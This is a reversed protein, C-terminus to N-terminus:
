LGLQRALFTYALAALHARQTNDAAGGHGGEINEYYLVDHGLERMRAVMKRAHAPHVRDDRTSTTFLARPYRAERRVNHYPSYAAIAAWEAPVDPDGYEGKWSAGALLRAYRKMDLLPVQCVVAGFLEPRQTLMVGVLLGGNSGGMIGLRSPRTIKRGVLDEAVAAFDDYARQRDQKLAAQHWSPGYEGGGRINAQVYVGGRELWAAGVIPDYVPELSVEFGGYGYLLTPHDGSAPLDRKAVQYYPVRTGDRSTAFHQTVQLQAADFFAPSQKLPLRKGGVTGHSLTSPLTFDTAVLWYDDADNPEVAGVGLSGNGPRELPRRQWSGGTRTWVYLRNKVDELENVILATRLPTFAALAKNPAPTFLSSFERQGALFGELNAALLSGGPWTRGAVSWDDRLTILLQDDWTTVMASEPVEVPVLREGARLWYQTRYFTLARVVWDRVVGHDWARFAEVSVDAEEGAFVVRAQSLPTGRRWEKVVRPYGSDTLSGPGFDSGVYLTDRDKWAVSTKAEPLSFGGAVFARTTTDFERVVVADAGGRSLRLLCREQAPYLCVVGEYVWPEKESAALADLDLVTEWDPRAKRYETLTPVRRWLGRPHQEDKWFNYYYRGAKGIYPIKDQSDLIALLRRRLQEHRPDAELEATSARNRQRV